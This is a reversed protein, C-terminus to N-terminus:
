SNFTVTPGTLVQPVKCHLWPLWTFFPFSSKVMQVTSGKHLHLLPKGNNSRVVSQTLGYWDELYQHRLQTGLWNIYQAQGKRWFVKPTVKFRWPQWVFEPYTNELMFCLSGKYILLVGCQGVKHQALLRSGEEHKVLSSYTVNYWDDYKAVGLDKGIKNLCARHNDKISWYGRSVTAPLQRM